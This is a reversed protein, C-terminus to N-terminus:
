LEGSKGRLKEGLDGAARSAYEKAAEYKDKAEETGKKKAQRLFEEVREVAENFESRAKDKGKKIESKVDFKPDERVGHNMGEEVLEKASYPKDLVENTALNIRVKVGDNENAESADQKSDYIRDGKQYITAVKKGTNSSTYKIADSAASNLTDTARSTAEVAKDIVKGSTKTELKIRGFGHPFKESAWDGWSDAKEQAEHMAEEAKHKVNGAVLNLREKAKALAEVEEEGWSWCPGGWMAVWAVVVVAVVELARRKVM